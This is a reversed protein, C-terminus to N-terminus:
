ATYKEIQYMSQGVGVMAALHYVADIDNLAARVAARDNIDGRLFEVDSHLYAPRDATGHVQHSLSDFVRVRYGHALLEDALHSGVFGAGGTILIRSSMPGGVALSRTTM